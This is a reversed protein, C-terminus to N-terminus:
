NGGGNKYCLYPFRWVNGLGICLGVMSLIFDFKNSWGGREDIEDDDGAASTSIVDDDHKKSSNTAAASTTSSVRRAGNGSTTSTAGLLLAGREANECSVTAHDGDLADDGAGIKFQAGNQVDSSTMSAAALSNNPM